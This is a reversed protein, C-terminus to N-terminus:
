WRWRRCGLRRDSAAANRAHRLNELSDTSDPELELRVAPPLGQQQLWANAPLRRASAPWRQTWRAAPHPRHSRTRALMLARECGIGITRRRSTTAGAPPRVGAGGDAAADAASQAGGRALRPGSLGALGARRQAAGGARHGRGRAARRRDHLYRWRSPPASPQAVRLRDPVRPLVLKAPRGPNAARKMRRQARHAGWRCRAHCALCAM